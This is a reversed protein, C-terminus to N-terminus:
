FTGKKKRAVVQTNDGVQRYVIWDGADPGKNIYGRQLGQASLIREWGPETSFADFAAGGPETAAASPTPTIIPRGLRDFRREGGKTTQTDIRKETEEVDEVGVVPPIIVKNGKSDLSYIEKRKRKTGIEFQKKAADLGTRQAAQTALPIGGLAKTSPSVVQGVTAGPLIEPFAGMKAAALAAPASVAFDGIARRNAMEPGAAMLANVGPFDKGFAAIKEASAAQIGAVDRKGINQETIKALSSQLDKLAKNESVPMPFARNLGLLAEDSLAM